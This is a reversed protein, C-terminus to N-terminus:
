EAPPTRVVKREIYWLIAELVTEDSIQELLAWIREKVHSVRWGIIQSVWLM